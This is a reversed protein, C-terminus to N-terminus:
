QSVMRRNERKLALVAYCYYITLVILYFFGIKPVIINATLGIFFLVCPLTMAVLLIRCSQKYTLRVMFLIQAVVQALLGISLLIVIALGFMFSVLTPYLLIETAWRLTLVGSTGLWEKADFVENSGKKLEQIYVDRPKQSDSGKLFLELKPARYIVKNKTILITLKPYKKTMSDISGTTDVLSGTTDIIAVITGANNKIFYPMPKDFSIEGNQVYLPPLVKLPEMMGEQFFRNFDIIVRASFPISALAIVLLLYIFGYGSWRKAVDVYLRSSYLSMYLAQWYRYLPADITRIAQTKKSM